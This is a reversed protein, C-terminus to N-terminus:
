FHADEGRFGIVELGEAGEASLAKGDLTGGGTIAADHARFSTIWARKPLETEDFLGDTVADSFHERSYDAYHPSALLTAGRELHLEVQAKLVFSGTMFVRGAPVLVTGGGAKHCTDITRQLAAADNAKCYGVAGFDHINYTM